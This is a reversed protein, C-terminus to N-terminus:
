AKGGHDGEQPAAWERERSKSAGTGQVVGGRAAHRYGRQPRSSLMVVQERGGEKGVCGAHATRLRQIRTVLWGAACNAESQLLAKNHGEPLVRCCYCVAPAPKVASRFCRRDTPCSKTHFLPLSDKFLLTKPGLRLPDSAREHM